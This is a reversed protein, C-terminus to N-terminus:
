AEADSTFCFKACECWSLKAPLLGKSLVLGFKLDVSSHSSGVLPRDLHSAGVFLGLDVMCDLAKHHM